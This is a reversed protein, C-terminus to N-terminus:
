QSSILNIHKKTKKHKYISAKCVISGCECTIKKLKEEKIKQYHEKHYEKLKEKNNEAYEKKKIKIIEKNDERWQKRKEKIEEKNKKAWEKKYEQIKKKNLENYKEIRKKIKEINTHYYEKRKEKTKQNYEKEYKEKDGKIRIPNNKNVITLGEKKYKDFFERERRKLENEDKCPYNEILIISCQKLDVGINKSMCNNNKKRHTNMRKHLPQITSGVYFKYNEDNVIKYIKGKSYDKM